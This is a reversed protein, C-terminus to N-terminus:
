IVGAALDFARSIGKSPATSESGSADEIVEVVAMVELKKSEPFQACMMRATSSKIERSNLLRVLSATREIYESDVPYDKDQEAKSVEFTITESKPPLGTLDIKKIAQQWDRGYASLQYDDARAIALLASRMGNTSTIKLLASYSLGSITEEKSSQRAVSAIKNWDEGFDASIIIELVERSTPFIRCSYFHKIARDFDSEEVNSLDELWYDIERDVIEVKKLSVKALLNLADVISERTVLM